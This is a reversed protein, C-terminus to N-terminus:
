TTATPATWSNYQPMPQPCVNESPIVVKTLGMLQAVQNQLCGLTATNTANYVAQQCLTANVGDLKNNFYSYVELLKQDTYTNAKLLENSTELQAIRSQLQQEYRNVMHDESCCGTANRNGLLGGLSGNLLEVGLAGAGLGLATGAVGRSAYMEAM